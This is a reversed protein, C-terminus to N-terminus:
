KTPLFPNLVFNMRGYNMNIAMAIPDLPKGFYESPGASKLLMQKIRLKGTIGPKLAASGNAPYFILM